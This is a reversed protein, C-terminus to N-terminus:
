NKMLARLNCFKNNMADKILSEWYEQQTVGDPIAFKTMIIQCMSQPHDRFTTWKQLLIKNCPWNDSM